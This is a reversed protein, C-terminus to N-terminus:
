LPSTAASLWSAVEKELHPGVTKKVREHYTNVWDREGETLMSVSILRKDLPVLSLTEFYLMTRGTETCVNGQKVTQITEIRIGYEGEKYYGPENTIIMGPEIVKNGRPSLNASEEHVCLHVGVGHGTGHAFDQGDIWLPQRALADIQAGTTGEPFQARAVAIHGKLVKTYQQRMEPTPEGVAITRTLDTTGDTYQGGTDILLMGPARITAGDLEDPVRYHIVAGNANYGVIHSFSPGRYQPIEKRCEDIKEGVMRETLSGSAAREDLWHLMNVLAAGDRVHCEQMAALESETKVARPAVCPDDGHHIPIELQSLCHFFWIPSRKPDYLVPGDQPNLAKLTQALNEPPVIRLVQGSMDQGCHKLIDPSLRDEDIFWDVSGDAHFLAYSLALPVMPIDDGRINFLWAISDGMTILAAQLGQDMLRSSLESRKMAASKGSISDPFIVVNNRVPEPRDEWIEAVPDANSPQLIGGVKQVAREIRTIQAYTSHWPNYGIVTGEQLHQLLWEEPPMAIMDATEFHNKDVQQKLQLTYRGDSMVVAEDSLVICYGASGDFSTLWELRRADAPPYENQFEDAHPVLYGQLGERELIRRLASLKTEASKLNANM